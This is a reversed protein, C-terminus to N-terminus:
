LAWNQQVQQLLIPMKVLDLKLGELAVVLDCHPPLPLLTVSM